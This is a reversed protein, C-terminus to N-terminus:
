LLQLFNDIYCFSIKSKKCTPIAFRNRVPKVLQVPQVDTIITLDASIESVFARFSKLPMKSLPPVSMSHSTETNGVSSM